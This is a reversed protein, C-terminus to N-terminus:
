RFGSRRQVSYKNKAKFEAMFREFGNLSDGAEFADEDSPRSAYETAKKHRMTNAARSLVDWCVKLRFNM